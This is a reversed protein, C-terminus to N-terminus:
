KNDVMLNYAILAALVMVSAGIYMIVSLSDIFSTNAAMIITNAQEPLTEAIAYAGGISSEATKLAEQPLNSLSSAINSSYNSALLSGFVAIGLAGGFERTTDNMASGVGAKRTPVSGIIAETATPMALGMGGGLVTLSALIYWVSTDANLQALMVFAIGVIILGGTLVKRTGLKEEFNTVYKSVAVLAGGIVLTRIAAELATYGQVFQLYQTLVYFLGFLGFFTLVLTLSGISFRKSSFFSLPLMPHKVRREWLIFLIFLVISIIASILTHISAWGYVPAEIITYLLAGITAVSLLAGTWDLKEHEPDMSTPVFLVTLAMSLIVVPIAAFFISGYWFFELLTGAVVPGIAGGAGAFGAWMAVAKARERKDTFVNAIISLTAPMIFAAGAGMLARSAILQQPTDALGAFISAIGFVSMGALFAGKRGYRDGISGALFLLGAFVLAYSDLIWQLQTSTTGLERVLTPIAVNLSSVSMIVLLLGSSMVAHILWRKKQIAQKSNSRTFIEM